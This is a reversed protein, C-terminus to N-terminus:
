CVENSATEKDVMHERIHTVIRMETLHIAEERFNSSHPNITRQLTKGCTRSNFVMCTYFCGNGTGKARIDLPCLHHRQRYLPAVRGRSIFQDPWLHMEPEPWMEKVESCLGWTCWTHKFGITDSDEYDLPLGSEILTKLRILADLYGQDTMKIDEGM